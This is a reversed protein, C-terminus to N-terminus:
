VIEDSKYLIHQIVPSNTIFTSVQSEDLILILVVRTNGKTITTMINNFHHM